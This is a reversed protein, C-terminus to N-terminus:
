SDGLARSNDNSCVSCLWRPSGTTVECAEAAGPKQKRRVGRGVRVHGWLQVGWAGYVGDTEPATQMAESLEAFKPSAEM